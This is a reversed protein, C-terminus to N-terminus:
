AQGKLMAVVMNYAKDTAERQVTNKPSINWGHDCGEMRQSVVERGGGQEIKVALEEAEPALSDGAATIILVREPFRDPQAYYPSIRADRKNHSSPIYCKDFFRALSAPLPNGTPDPPSKSGPKTELDVPPYFTLVAYLTQRPFLTSSAALALNGGASFGSLAVRARDFKDPQQLVWNVVDEVDNLAAPFPHEPALRYQVDLVIYGTKESMLRCFEEDSGHAPLIFGSGHFNILVPAPNSVAESKYVHAKITRRPDRSQIQYVDDPKAIIHRKSGFVARIVLALVKCYLYTLFFM